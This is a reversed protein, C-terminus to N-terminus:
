TLTKVVVFVKYETYLFFPGPNWLQQEIKQLELFVLDKTIKKCTKAFKFLGKTILKAFYINETNPTTRTHPLAIHSVYSHLHNRRTCLLMAM